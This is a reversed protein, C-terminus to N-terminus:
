WRARVLRRAAKRLLRLPRSVPRSRATLYNSLAAPVIECPAGRGPVEIGATWLAANVILRRLPAAVWAAHSDIGTYAFSRGGDAREYAWAVVDAAGSESSGQARKGAWVLPTLGRMGAVFDIANLWGDESSWATVGRTVPHEPFSRHDARWHGRHSVGEVYAGGLWARSRDALPAPFAIAQHLVLLGARGDILQQIRGIRGADALFGQKGNGGDYFLVAAADALVSDDDPWGDRVVLAKTGPTQALLDALLACGGAYDHHGVRDDARVRGAVLVIKTV